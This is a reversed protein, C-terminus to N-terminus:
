TLKGPHVARPEPAAHDRGFPYGPPDAALAQQDAAIRHAVDDHGIRRDTPAVRQDPRREIADLEHRQPPKGDPVVAALALPRLQEGVTIPDLDGPEREGGLDLQGPRRARVGAVAQDAAAAAERQRVGREDGAAAVGVIQDQLAPRGARQPEVERLALQEDLDRGAGRRAVAIRELGVAQDREADAVHESIAVVAELDGAALAGVRRDGAVELRQWRADDDLHQRAAPADRERQWTALSGHVEGVAPEIQDRRQHPRRRAVRGAVEDGVLHQARDHPRAVGVDHARLDVDVDRAAALVQQGGAEGSRAQELARRAAARRPERQVRNCSRTGTLREPLQRVLLRETAVPQDRPEAVAPHGVHEDRAPDARVANSSSTATLRM